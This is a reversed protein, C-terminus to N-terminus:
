LGASRAIQKLRQILESPPIVHTMQMESSQTADTTIRLRLQEARQVVECEALHVPLLRAYSPALHSDKPNLTLEATGSLAACAAMLDTLMLPLRLIPSDRTDALAMLLADCDREEAVHWQAARGFVEAQEASFGSSQAARTALTQLDLKNNM